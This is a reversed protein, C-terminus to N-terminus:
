PESGKIYADRIARLDREPMKGGLTQGNAAVYMKAIIRADQDGKELGRLLAANIDGRGFERATSGLRNVPRSMADEYAEADRTLRYSKKRCAAIGAYANNTSEEHLPAAIGYSRVADAVLEGCGVGDQHEQVHELLGCCELARRIEEPPVEDLDVESLTISYRPQGENDRGCCEDMNLLEIFHWRQGDIYRAWVGGYDLWNVDGTFFHFGRTRKTASM